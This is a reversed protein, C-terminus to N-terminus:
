VLEQSALSGTLINVYTPIVTAPELFALAVMYAIGDLLFLYYNDIRM